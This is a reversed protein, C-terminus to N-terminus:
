AGGVSSDLSGLLFGVRDMQMIHSTSIGTCQGYGSLWVSHFLRQHLSFKTVIHQKHFKSFNITNPYKDSSYCFFAKTFLKIQYSEYIELFYWVLKWVLNEEVRSAPREIKKMKSNQDDWFYSTLHWIFFNTRFLGFNKITFIEKKVTSLKAPLSFRIFFLAPFFHVLCPFSM